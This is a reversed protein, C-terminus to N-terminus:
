IIGLQDEQTGVHGVNPRIAVVELWVTESLPHPDDTIESYVRRIVAKVLKPPAQPELACFYQFFGIM